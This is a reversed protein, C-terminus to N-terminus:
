DFFADRFICWRAHFGDKVELKKGQDCTRRNDSFAAEFVPVGLERLHMHGPNMDTQANAIGILPKQKCEEIDVGTGKLISVRVISVPFDQNDFIPSSQPKKM